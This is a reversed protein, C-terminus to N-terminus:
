RYSPDESYPDDNDSFGRVPTPPGIKREEEIAKDIQEITGQIENFLSRSRPTNNPNYPKALEEAIERRAKVMQERAKQLTHIHNSM